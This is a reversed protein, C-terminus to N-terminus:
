FNAVQSATNRSISSSEILPCTIINFVQLKLAQEVFLHSILFELVIHNICSLFM